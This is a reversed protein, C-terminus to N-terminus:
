LGINQELKLTDIIDLLDTVDNIINKFNEPEQASTFFPFEFWNKGSSIAIYLKGTGKCNVFEGSIDVTKREKAITYLRDTFSTTLLYRANIQDTSVTKFLKSFEVDELNVEQANAHKGLFDDLANLVGMNKYFVTKGKVKKHIQAAILIGHFVPVRMSSKGTPLISSLTMEQIEVDIGNYKGSIYDDFSLQEFNKFLSLSYLEDTDIHESTINMGMSAMVNTALTPNPNHYKLGFVSALLKESFYSKMVSKYRTIVLCSLPYVFMSILAILFFKTEIGFVEKSLILGALFLFVAWISFYGLLYNKRKAEMEITFPEAYKEFFAEFKESNRPNDM